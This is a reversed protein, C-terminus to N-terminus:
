AKLWQIRELGNGAQKKRWFSRVRGQCMQLVRFHWRGERTIECYVNEQWFCIGKKNTNTQRWRSGVKPSRYLAVQFDFKIIPKRRSPCIASRVGQVWPHLLAAVLLSRSAAAICAVTERENNRYKEWSISKGLATSIWAQVQLCSSPLDPFSMIKRLLIRPDLTRHNQTITIWFIEPTCQSPAGRWGLKEQWVWVTKREKIHTKMIPRPKWGSVQLIWWNKMPYKDKRM